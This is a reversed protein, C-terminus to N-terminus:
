HFGDRTVVPCHSLLNQLNFSYQSMMLWQRMWIMSIMSDYFQSLIERIQRISVGFHHQCELDMQGHSQRECGRIITRWMESEPLLHLRSCYSLTALYANPWSIQHLQWELFDVAWMRVLHRDPLRTVTQSTPIQCGVSSGVQYLMMDHMGGSEMSCLDFTSLLPALLLILLSCFAVSRKTCSLTLPCTNSYHQM